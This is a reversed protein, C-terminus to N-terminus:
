EPNNRKKAKGFAKPRGRRVERSSCGSCDLTCGAPIRIPRASNIGEYGHFADTTTWFSGHSGSAAEIAGGCDFDGDVHTAYQSCRGNRCDLLAPGSIVTTPAFGM